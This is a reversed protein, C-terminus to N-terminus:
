QLSKYLDHFLIGFFYIEIILGVHFPSELMPNLCSNLMSLSEFELASGFFSPPFSSFNYFSAEARSLSLSAWNPFLAWYFM